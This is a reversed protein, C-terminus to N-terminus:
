CDKCVKDPFEKHLYEKIPLQESPVADKKLAQFVDVDRDGLWLDFFPLKGGKEKNAEVMLDRFKRMSISIVGFIPTEVPLEKDGSPQLLSDIRGEKTWGTLKACIYLQILPTEGFEAMEDASVRATEIKGKKM